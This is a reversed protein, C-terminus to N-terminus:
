NIMKTIMYDHCFKCDTRKDGELGESLNDALNSLSSSMNKMKRLRIMAM